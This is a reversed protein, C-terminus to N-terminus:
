YIIYIMWWHINRLSKKSIAIMCVSLSARGSGTVKSRFMHKEVVVDTVCIGM